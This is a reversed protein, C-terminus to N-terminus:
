KYYSRPAIEPIIPFSPLSLNAKYRKLSKFHYNNLLDDKFKLVFSQEEPVIVLPDSHKSSSTGMTNLRKPLLSDNVTIFYLLAKNLFLISKYNCLLNDLPICSTIAAIIRLNLSALSNDIRVRGIANSSNSTGSALFITVISNVAVSPRDLFIKNSVTFNESVKKEVTNTIIYFPDTCSSHSLM